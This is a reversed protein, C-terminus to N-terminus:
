IKNENRLEFSWRYGYAKTRIAYKYKKGSLYKYKRNLAANRINAKGGSCSIAADTISSFSKIYNWDLDYQHIEKRGKGFNM